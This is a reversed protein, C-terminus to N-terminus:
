NLYKPKDGDGALAANQEDYSMAQNLQPAHMWNATQIAQTLLRLFGHSLQTDMSLRVDRKNQDINEILHMHLLDSDQLDLEVDTILLPQVGVPNQASEAFPTAYDSDYANIELKFSDVLNKRQQTLADSATQAQNEQDLLVQNNLQEQAKSGLLPMLGLALRRTLWMQWEQGERSNIRMLIRDQEKLYKVSLQHIKMSQIPPKDPEPNDNKANKM